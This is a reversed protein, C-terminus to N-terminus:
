LKRFVYARNVAFNVVLAGASGVAVALVPYRYMTDSMLICAVYVAYNVGAGIANAAVYKAWQRHAASTEAQTFTYYRNALWTATAAVLYSLIRGSFRDLGEWLLLQLTGADVVFGGAGVICYRAFQRAFAVIDQVLTM